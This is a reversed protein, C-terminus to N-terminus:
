LRAQTRIYEEVAQRPIRWVRGNRYAKLNHNNLLRYLANKGIRLAECAEDATMLDDYLELMLASRKAIPVIQYRVFRAFASPPKKKRARPKGQPSLLGLKTLQQCVALESRGLQLTIDSIDIGDECYLRKLLQLEEESWYEGSREAPMEGTRLAILLQQKETM